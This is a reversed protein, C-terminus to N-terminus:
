AWSQQKFNLPYEKMMDFSLDLWTQKDIGSRSFVILPYTFFVDNVTNCKTLRNSLGQKISERWFRECLQKRSLYRSFPLVWEYERLNYKDKKSQNLILRIGIKYDEDCVQEFSKYKRM